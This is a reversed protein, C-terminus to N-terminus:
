SATSVQILPKPRLLEPAVQTAKEGLLKLFPLHVPGACGEHKLGIYLAESKVRLVEQLPSAMVKGWM